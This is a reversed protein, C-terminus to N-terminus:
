NGQLRHWWNRTTSISKSVFRSVQTKSKEIRLKLALYNWPIDDKLFTVEEQIRKLEQSLELKELQSTSASNEVTNYEKLLEVEKENQLHHLNLMWLVLETDERMDRPILKLDTNGDCPIKTLTPICSLSAPVEVLKNNRLDLTHLAPTKLEGIVTLRNDHLILEELMNCHMGLEIPIATVKNYSLNLKKLRICQSIAQDITHLENHSLNLTQILHLQSVIPPITQLNNFALSLQVLENRYLQVIEIPFEKYQGHSLDLSGEKPGSTLDDYEEM